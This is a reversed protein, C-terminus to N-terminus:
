GLFGLRWTVPMPVGAPTSVIVPRGRDDTGMRREERNIIDNYQADDKAAADMARVASWSVTGAPEGQDTIAALRDFIVELKQKHEVPMSWNQGTTDGSLKTSVVDSETPLLFIEQSAEKPAHEKAKQDGRFWQFQGVQDQLGDCM